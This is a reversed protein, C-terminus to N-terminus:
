KPTDVIPSRPANNSMPVAKARYCRGEFQFPKGDLPIRVGAQVLKAALASKLAKM